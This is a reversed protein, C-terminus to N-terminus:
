QQNAAAKGKKWYSSFIDPMIDEALIDGFGICSM